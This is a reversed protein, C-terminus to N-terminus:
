FPVCDEHIDLTMSKGCDPCKGAGTPVTVAQQESRQMLEVMMPKTGNGRRWADVARNLEAAGSAFTSASFRAMDATESNLLERQVNLVKEAREAAAATSKYNQEADQLDVVYGAYEDAPTSAKREKREAENSGVLRKTEGYAAAAVEAQEHASLYTALAATVQESLPQAISEM